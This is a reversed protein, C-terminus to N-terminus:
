WFTQVDDKEWFRPDTTDWRYDQHIFERGRQQVSGLPSGSMPGAPRLPRTRTRKLIQGGVRNTRQDRDNRRSSPPGSRPSRLRTERIRRTTATRTGTRRRPLARPQRRLDRDGTRIRGPHDRYLESVQGTFRALNFLQLDHRSRGWDALDAMIEGIVSAFKYGHGSFGTAFSVQPYEPHLDIIFHNDPSNTFMCAVLSMTPGAGQPFYRSAFNRLLDEDEWTPDRQYYDPDVIEEFHHYKGFKFGPVGHVPFGYYRGEPVLLNFVPFREPTFLGPADPQLWALVQREPLAL